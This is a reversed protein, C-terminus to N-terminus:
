KKLMGIEKTTALRFKSYYREYLPSSREIIPYFSTVTGGFYDNYRRDYGDGNWDWIQRYGIVKVEAGDNQIPESLEYLDGCSLDVVYEGKEYHDKILGFNKAIRIECHRPLPGLFADHINIKGTKLAKNLRRISTETKKM